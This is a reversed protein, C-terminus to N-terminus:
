ERYPVDIVPGNLGKPTLQIADFGTNANRTYNAVFHRDYLRLEAKSARDAVVRPRIAAAASHDHVFVV